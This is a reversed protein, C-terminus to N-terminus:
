AITTTLRWVLWNIHLRKFGKAELSFWRKLAGHYSKISAQTDQKSHLLCQLGIMWLELVVYMICSLIYTANNEFYSLSHFLQM